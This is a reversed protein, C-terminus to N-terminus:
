VRKAETTPRNAEGSRRRPTKTKSQKAEFAKNYVHREDGAAKSDQRQHLVPHVPM